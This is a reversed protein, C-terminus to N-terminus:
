ETLLGQDKKGVKEFFEDECFPRLGGSMWVKLDVKVEEKIEGAVLEHGSVLPVHDGLLKTWIGLEEVVKSVITTSITEDSEDVRDFGILDEIVM